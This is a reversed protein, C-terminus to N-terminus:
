KFHRTHSFASIEYMQLYLNFVARPSSSSGSSLLASAKKNEKIGKLLTHVYM